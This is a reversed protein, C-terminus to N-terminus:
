TVSNWSGDPNKCFKPAQGSKKGDGLQHSIESVLYEIKDVPQNIDALHLLPSKNSGNVSNEIRNGEKNNHANKGWIQRPTKDSTQHASKGWMQHADGNQGGQGTSKERQHTGPDDDQVTKEFDPESVGFVGDIFFWEAGRYSGDGKVDLWKGIIYISQRGTRRREVIGAKELMTLIRSVETETIQLINGVSKRELSCCLLKEELYLQHLGMYHPQRSRWINRRLLIYAAYARSKVFRIYEPNDLLRFDTLLFQRNFNSNM